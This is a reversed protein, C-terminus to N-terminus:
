LKDQSVPQVQMSRSVAAASPPAAALQEPFFDHQPLATPSRHPSYVARRLDMWREPMVKQELWLWLRAGAQNELRLLLRRQFDAIVVMKHEAVGTQYGLSEWRWAEGDWALQGRPLHRWSSRAALGALLVFFAALAMRRDFLQEAQWWLLVACVGAFWCGLLLGGLLSSRGLPYIVPPANHRNM